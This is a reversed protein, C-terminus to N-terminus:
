WVGCVVLLRHRSVCPRRAPDPQAHGNRLRWALGAGAAGLEPGGGQQTRAAPHQRCVRSPGTRGCLRLVGSQSLLAPFQVTPGTDDTQSGPTLPPTGPKGSVGKAAAVARM